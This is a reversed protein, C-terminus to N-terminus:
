EHSLYVPNVSLAQSVYPYAIITPNMAATVRSTIFCVWSGWHMIDCRSPRSGLYDRQNLRDQLLHVHRVVVKERGQSRDYLQKTDAIARSHLANNRLGLIM